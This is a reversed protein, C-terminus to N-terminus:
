LRRGRRRLGTRALLLRGRWSYPDGRVYAGERRSGRDGRTHARGRWSGRDGRARGRADGGAVLLSAEPRSAMSRMTRRLTNRLRDPAPASNAPTTTREVRQDPRPSPDPISSHHPRPYVTGTRSPGVVRGTQERKV